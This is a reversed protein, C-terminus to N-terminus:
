DGIKYCGFSGRQAKSQHSSIEIALTVQPPRQVPPRFPCSRASKCSPVVIPAANKSQSLCVVHRHRLAGQNQCLLCLPKLSPIHTMQTVCARACARAVCIDCVGQEIDGGNLLARPCSLAQCQRNQREM